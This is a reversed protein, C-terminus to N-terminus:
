SVTWLLFSPSFAPMLTACCAFTSAALAPWAPSSPSPMSGKSTRQGGRVSSCMYIFIVFCSPIFIVVSFQVLVLHKSSYVNLNSM